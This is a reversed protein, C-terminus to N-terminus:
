KLGESQELVFDTIKWLERIELNVPREESFPLNDRLERAKEKSVGTIHRSDVFANRTKKRKNTFLAKVLKFFAEEDEVPHRDKNPYLKLIATDVDPQPTYNRSSVKQLKVPLFFYKIRISTETYKNEGPEALIKDALEDQVIVSSQIQKKGLREMIETASHFPLNSVCRSVEEPISYSFFDEEIVEVNFAKFREELHKVLKRDKELAYVKEAEAKLEETIAGTGAGIELVNEDEVEGSQVLAKIVTESNLFNQGSVPKIGLKRLTKEVDKM